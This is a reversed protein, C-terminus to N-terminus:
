IEEINDNENFIEGKLIHRKYRETVIQAKNVGSQLFQASSKYVNVTYPATTGCVIFYHETAHLGHCYLAAQLDYDRNRAERKFSEYDQAMSSTKIEIVAGNKHGDAKGKLSVGNYEFIFPTEFTCGEIMKTAQPHENFNRMISTIKEEFSAPVIIGEEGASERFDREFAAYEEKKRKDVVSFAVLHKNSQIYHHVATGLLTSDSGKFPSNKYYLYVSPSELLHKISSYSEYKLARYEADSLESLPKTM